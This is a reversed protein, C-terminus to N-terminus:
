MKNQYWIWECQRQKMYKVLLWWSFSVTKVASSVKNIQKMYKFVFQDKKGMLEVCNNVLDRGFDKVAVVWKEWTLQNV